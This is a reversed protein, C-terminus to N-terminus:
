IAFCDWSPHGVGSVMLEPQTDTAETYKIIYMFVLTYSGNTTDRNYSYQTMHMIECSYNYTLPLTHSLTINYYM